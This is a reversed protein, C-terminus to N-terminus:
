DIKNGVIMKCVNENAHENILSFWNPIEDFTEKNTVDFIILIVHAKKYFNLSMTRFREQGATDWVKM